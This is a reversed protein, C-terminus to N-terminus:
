GPAPSHGGEWRINDGRPTCTLSVCMRSHIGQRGEICQGREGRMVIDVRDRIDRRHQQLCRVPLPLDDEDKM